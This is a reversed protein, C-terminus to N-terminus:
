APPACNSSNPLPIKLPFPPLIIRYFQDLGPEPTLRGFYLCRHHRASGKGYLVNRKGNRRSKSCLTNPRGYRGYQRQALPLLHAENKLLVASEAAIQRALSLRASETSYLNEKQSMSTDGKQLYGKKSTENYRMHQRLSILFKEIKDTNESKRNRVFFSDCIRQKAM